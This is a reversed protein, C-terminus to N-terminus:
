KKISIMLEKVLKDKLKHGTKTTQLITKNKDKKDYKKKGKKDKQKMNNSNKYLPHKQFEQKKDLYRIKLMM